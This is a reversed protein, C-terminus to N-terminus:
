ATGGDISVFKAAGASTVHALVTGASDQWDQLNGTQSAAGKVVFAKDAATTNVVQAMAGSTLTAGVGLRGAMYNQATGDMYLNYRNTGSAISSRFGFNNTAGTTSSSVFFGTQSTITSGAGPTVVGLAQFHILSSLTFATAATNSASTFGTAQGTVDSQIQGQSVIGWSNAAGTINKSLLVSYNAASTAGISVNGSSDIRMREIANTTFLLNTAGESGIFPTNGTISGVLLRGSTTAGFAAAVNNQSSITTSGQVDLRVTPPRVGIGVFGSGDVAVPPPYRVIGPM